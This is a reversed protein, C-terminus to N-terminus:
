FGFAKEAEALHSRYYQSVQNPEYVTNEDEDLIPVGSENRKPCSAAEFSQIDSLMTTNIEYHGM